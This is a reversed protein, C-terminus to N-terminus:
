VQKEELKERTPPRDVEYAEHSPSARRHGNPAMFIAVHEFGKRKLTCENPCWTIRM